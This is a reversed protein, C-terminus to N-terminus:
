AKVVYGYIGFPAIPVMLALGYVFLDGLSLTRKLEQKYGFKEISHGTPEIQPM